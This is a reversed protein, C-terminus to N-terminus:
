SNGGTTNISIHQTLCDSVTEIIIYDNTDGVVQFQEAFM